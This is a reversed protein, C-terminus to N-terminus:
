SDLLFYLNVLSIVWILISKKKKLKKKRKLKKKKKKKLVVPVVLVLVEVAEEVELPYHLSKLFDMILLSASIKEKSHTSSPM